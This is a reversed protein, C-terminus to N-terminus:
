TGGGWRAGRSGRPSCSADGSVSLAGLLARLATLGPGTAGRGAGRARARAVDTELRGIGVQAAGGRRGLAGLVTARLAAAQEGEEPVDDVLQAAHLPGVAALDALAGEDGEEEDEDGPAIEPKEVRDPLRDHFRDELFINRQYTM